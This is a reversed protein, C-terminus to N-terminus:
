VTCGHVADRDRRDMAAVRQAMGTVAAISPVAQRRWNDAIGDMGPSRRRPNRTRAEAAPHRWAPDGKPRRITHPFARLPPALSIAGIASGACSCATLAMRAGSRVQFVVIHPFRGLSHGEERHSRGPWAIILRDSVWLSLSHKAALYTMRRGFALLRQAEGTQLAVNRSHPDGAPVRRNFDLNM